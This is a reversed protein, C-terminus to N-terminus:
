EERAAMTALEVLDKTTDLIIRITIADELWLFEKLRHVSYENEKKPKAGELMYGIYDDLSSKLYKLIKKKGYRYRSLTRLFKDRSHKTSGCIYFLIDSFSYYEVSQLATEIDAGTTACWRLLDMNKELLNLNYKMLDLAQLSRKHSLGTLKEVLGVKGERSDLFDSKLINPDTTLKLQYLGWRSLPSILIVNLEKPISKIVKEVTRLDYGLYVFFVPDGFITRKNTFTPTEGKMLYIKKILSPPLDKEVELAPDYETVLLM